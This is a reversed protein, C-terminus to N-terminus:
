KGEAQKIRQAESTFESASSLADGLHIRAMAQDSDMLKIAAQLRSVIGDFNGVMHEHSNVAKEIYEGIENTKYQKSLTAVRERYENNADNLGFGDFSLKLTTKNM